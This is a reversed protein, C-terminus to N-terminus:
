NWRTKNKELGTGVGEPLMEKKDGLDRSGCGIYNHSLKRLLKTDVLAPRGDAERPM